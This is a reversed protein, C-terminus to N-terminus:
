YQFLPRSPAQADPPPCPLRGGERPAGGSAQPALGSQRMEREREREREREGYIYIYIYKTCVVGTLSNHQNETLTTKLGKM